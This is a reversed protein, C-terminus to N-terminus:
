QATSEDLFEDALPQGPLGGPSASGGSGPLLERVEWGQHWARQAPFIGLIQLLSPLPPPHDLYCGRGPLCPPPSTINGTLRVATVTVPLLSGARESPFQRQTLVSPRPLALHARAGPQPAPPVSHARSGLSPSHFTPNRSAPPKSPRPCPLRGWAGRLDGRLAPERRVAAHSWGKSYIGLQDQTLNFDMEISNFCRLPSEQSTEHTRGPGWSSLTPHRPSQSFASRESVGNKQPVGTTRGRACLGGSKIPVPLTGPCGEDGCAVGIQIFSSLGLSLFPSLWPREALQRCFWHEFGCKESESGDRKWSAM